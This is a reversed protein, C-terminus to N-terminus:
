IYVQNIKKSGKAVDIAFLTLQKQNLKGSVVNNKNRLFGILDGDKLYPLIVLPIGNENICIGILTLVNDHNFNQM